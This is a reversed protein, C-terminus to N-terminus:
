AERKRRWRFFGLGALGSGLLLMSSPEPIPAQAPSIQWTGPNNEVKGFDESTILNGTFPNVIGSSESVSAFDTDIFNTGVRTVIRFRQEGAPPLPQTPFQIVLDVVWQTLQGVTDTTVFFVNFQNPTTSAITNVGDTFSFAIPFIQTFTSFDPQLPAATTFSGAISNTTSYTMGSPKTSDTIIDFNNGTYTYTTPVAMANTPNLAILIAALILVACVALPKRLSSYSM